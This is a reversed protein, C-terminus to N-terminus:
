DIRVSWPTKQNNVGLFGCAEPFPRVIFEM